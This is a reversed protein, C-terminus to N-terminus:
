KATVKGQPSMANVINLVGYGYVRDPGSDGFDTATQLLVQKLDPGNLNPFKQRLLAAAGAVRPASFSTGSADGSFLVDDHAVIYDYLMDGAQYSYSAISSGSDNISGVFIKDKTIQHGQDQVRDYLSAFYDCDTISVSGCQLAGNGAAYIFLMKENYVPESNSNISSIKSSVANSVITEWNPNNTGTYIGSDNKLPKEFGWSNNVIYYGNSNYYEYMNNSNQITTELGSVSLNSLIVNTEPAVSNIVLSVWDGHSDIRGNSNFSDLLGIKVDKGTWGNSWASNANTDRTAIPYVYGANLTRNAQDLTSFSNGSPGDYPLGRESGLLVNDKASSLSSMTGLTYNYSTIEPSSSVVGGGGGCSSTILTIKLLLYLRIYLKM